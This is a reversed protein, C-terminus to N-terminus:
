QGVAMYAYKRDIMKQMDCEEWNTLEVIRTREQALSVSGRMRNVLTTYRHLEPTYCHRPGKNIHLAM